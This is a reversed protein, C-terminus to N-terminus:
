NYRFFFLLHIVICRMVMNRYFFVFILFVECSMGPNVVGTTRIDVYLPNENSNGILCEKLSTTYALRKNNESTEYSGSMYFTVTSSEPWENFDLLKRKLDKLTVMDNYIQISSVAYLADDLKACYYIYRSPLPKEDPVIL